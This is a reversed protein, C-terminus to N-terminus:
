PLVRHLGLLGAGEDVGYWLNLNQVAQGAAGKVLNDIASVIVVVDEDAAAGVLCHNTGAVAAIRVEEPKKAKVFPTKAYTDSLCARIDEIKGRPRAYATSLIGRRIPLLHATFTLKVKAFRAIEPTHQHSLIKYARLDEDIEAFSFDETAKRGAGTVGSKADVIIGESEILGAKVLPAIALIAATPYCGPNAVLEGKPAGTVEPLGYHASALLEPAPHDLKYWRTYDAPKELRFAGSLDIVRKKQGLLKPALDASVEASTALMVCDADLDPAAGNPEFRLRTPVGLQDEVPEGKKKDSTAFVLEFHPHVALLRAAVAGSFGSAGVVGVRIV